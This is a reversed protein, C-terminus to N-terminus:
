WREWPRSGLQIWGSWMAGSNDEWCRRRNVPWIGSSRYFCACEQATTVPTHLEQHSPLFAPAEVSTNYGGFVPLQTNEMSLSHNFLLHWRKSGLATGGRPPVDHQCSDCVSGWSMRSWSLMEPETTHISNRTWCSDFTDVAVGSASIIDQGRWPAPVTWDVSDNAASWSSFRHHTNRIREM